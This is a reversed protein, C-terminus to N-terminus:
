IHLFPQREESGGGEPTEKLRRSEGVKDQGAEDRDREREPSKLTHEWKIQAPM